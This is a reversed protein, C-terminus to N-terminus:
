RASISNANKICRVADFIRPTEQRKSVTKVFEGAAVSWRSTFHCSGRLNCESRAERDARFENFSGRNREREREGGEGTYACQFKRRFLPLWWRRRRAPIRKACKEAYNTVPHVSAWAQHGGVQERPSYRPMFFHYSWWREFSGRKLFTDEAM